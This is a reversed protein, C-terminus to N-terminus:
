GVVRFSGIKSIAECGKFSCDANDAAWYYRRPTTAWYGPFTLRPAKYIWWGPHHAWAKLEVFDCGKSAPCQGKLHIAKSAAQRTRAIAVFVGTRLAKAETDKVKLTIRGAHVRKGNPPGLTPRLGGAAVAVATTALMAVLVGVVATVWVKPRKM